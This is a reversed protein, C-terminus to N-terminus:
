VTHKSKYIARLDENVVHTYMQTTQISAHGLFEQVYRLNTNNKLLDTAFSHRLVHPNCAKLGSKRALTRFVEQVNGPTVRRGSGTVFLAENNDERSALYTNISAKAREDFFCLRPKNGKGVVTFCGGKLEGRNLRCLESVRIGSAYLLSVMAVNRLRNTTHYGSAPKGAVKLLHEVEKPSLYTPIREVRKPVPVLDPSLCPYGINELYSLIVRLKIIYNRVTAQSRSKELHLKWSRVMDFTLGSVVIDGTFDILSKIAIHHNEETKVSQNQFHIVDQVYLM